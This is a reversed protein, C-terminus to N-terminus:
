YLNDFTFPLLDEISNMIQIKTSSGIIVRIKKNGRIQSECLAQRCAGCPYTPNETLEGNYKAVVAISEIAVNPYQAHAYFIVSREACTGNTYAANEQNSGTLIIGNELRVAAGVHFKSYPAYSRDTATIARNLLEKDSEQLENISNYECYKITIEKTVM